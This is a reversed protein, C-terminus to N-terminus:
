NNYHVFYLALTVSSALRSSRVTRVYLLPKKVPKVHSFPGLFDGVISSFSTQSVVEWSFM